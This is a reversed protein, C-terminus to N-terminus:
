SLILDVVDYFEVYYEIQIEAYLGAILTTSDITGVSVAWYWRLSPNGGIAAAFGTEQSISQMGLQKKTSAYLKLRSVPGGYGNTIVTKAGPRPAANDVGTVTTSDDQPCIVIKCPFHSGSTAVFTGKIKSGHVRYKNYLTAWQDYGLPQAGGGTFDPDFISNGSFVYSDTAAAAPTLDLRTSYILRTFCREAVLIGPKVRMVSAKNYKRKSYKRKKNYAKKRRGYKKKRM